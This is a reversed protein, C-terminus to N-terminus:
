IEARPTLAWPKEIDKGVEEPLPLPPQTQFMESVQTGMKQRLAPALVRGKETLLFSARQPDQSTVPCSLAGAEEARKSM